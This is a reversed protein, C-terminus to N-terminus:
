SVAAKQFELHINLEHGTGSDAEGTLYLADTSKVPIPSTFQTSDWEDSAGTLAADWEFMEIGDSSANYLRITFTAGGGAPNTARVATVVLPGPLAASSSGHTVVTRSSESTGISTINTDDTRGFIPETQM